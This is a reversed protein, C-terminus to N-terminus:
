IKATLPRHGDDHMREPQVGLDLIAFNPILFNFSMTRDYPAFCVEIDQDTKTNSLLSLCISKSVCTCVNKYCVIRSSSTKVCKDVSRPLGGDRCQTGIFTVGFNLDIYSHCIKDSNFINKAAKIIM